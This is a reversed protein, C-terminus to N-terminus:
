ILGFIDPSAVNLLFIYDLNQAHPAYSVARIILGDGEQWGRQWLDNSTGPSGGKCVMECGSLDNPNPSCEYVSGEQVNGDKQSPGM